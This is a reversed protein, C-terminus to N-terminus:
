IKFKQLHYIILFPDQCMLLRRDAMENRGSIPNTIPGISVLNTNLRFQRRPLLRNYRMASIFSSQLYLIDLM